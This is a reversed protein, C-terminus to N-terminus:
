RRVHSIHMHHAWREGSTFFVMSTGLIDTVDVILNIELHGRYAQMPKAGGLALTRVIM